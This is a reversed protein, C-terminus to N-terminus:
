TCYLGDVSVHTPLPVGEAEALNLVMSLRPEHKSSFMM